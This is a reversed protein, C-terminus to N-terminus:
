KAAETVQVVTTAVDTIGATPGSVTAKDTGAAAGKGGFANTAPKEKALKSTDGPTGPLENVSKAAAEEDKEADGKLATLKTTLETITTTWKETTETISTTITTVKKEIKTIMTTTKTIWETVGTIEKTIRTTEPKSTTSKL